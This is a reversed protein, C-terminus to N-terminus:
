PRSSNTISHLLSTKESRFCPSSVFTISQQVTMLPLCSDLLFMFQFQICCILNVMWKLELVNLCSKRCWSTLSNVVNEYCNQWWEWVDFSLQLIL